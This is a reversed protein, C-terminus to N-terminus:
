TIKQRDGSLFVHGSSGLDQVDCLRSKGFCQFRQFIFKPFLQKGTMTEVDPQCFLPYQKPVPGGIRTGSGAAVIVAACRVNKKIMM